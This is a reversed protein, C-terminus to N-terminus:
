IIIVELFTLRSTPDYDKYCAGYLAYAGSEAPEKECFNMLYHRFDEWLRTPEQM